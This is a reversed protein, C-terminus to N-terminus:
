KPQLAQARQELPLAEQARGVKRLLGAYTTLTKAFDPTPLEKAKERIAMSRQLLPEAKAYDGQTIYYTALADLSPAVKPHDGGWGGERISLALRYHKEALELRGQALFQDAQQTLTAATDPIAPKVLAVAARLWKLPLRLVSKNAPQETNSSSQCGLVSGVILVVVIWRAMLRKGHM